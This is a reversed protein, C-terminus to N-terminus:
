IEFDLIPDGVGKDNDAYYKFVNDNNTRYVVVPKCGKKWAIISYDKTVKVTWQGPLKNGNEDVVKAHRSMGKGLYNYKEEKEEFPVIPLGTLKSLKEAFKRNREGSRCVIAKYIPDAITGELYSGTKRLENIQNWETVFHVNREAYLQGNNENLVTWSDESYCRVLKTYEQDVLLGVGTHTIGSKEGSQIVECAVEIRACFESHVLSEMDGARGYAGLWRIAVVPKSSRKPARVKNMSSYSKNSM